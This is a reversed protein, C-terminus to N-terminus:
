TSKKGKISIYGTLEETFEFLTTPVPKYPIMKVHTLEVDLVKTQMEKDFSM